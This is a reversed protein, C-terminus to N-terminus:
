ASFLRRVAEPAEDLLRHALAGADGAGTVLVHGAAHEAGDDSFIEADLRLSGDARFHAYAAVPSRCDGGLAALFAREAAVAVHTPTHDIAAILARVKDDDSRCEIGIAGQSAAPLLLDAGQVAGIDFMELRDLGAAALLTADVDGAALKGLRTAVNGRLLTTVIDPRLRKVQAARRPSSTGLRAGHPLDAISVADVGERVVLRDRPDARELMAVLAFRPDRLTEVDKLSHVAIDIEDADLAADLERTWLAKGGVEALARDQIRDGTATMPVIQLTDPAIGHVAILASAAMNAQALALPSARTGIRLPNEATPLDTM